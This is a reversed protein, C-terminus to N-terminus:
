DKPDQTEQQADQSSEIAQLAEVVTTAEESLARIQITLEELRKVLAGKDRKTYPM